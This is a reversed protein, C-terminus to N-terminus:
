PARGTVRGVILEPEQHGLGAARAPFDFLGIILQMPYDPAQDATKLLKGDLFFGVSGPRWEVAYVHDRSVDLPYPDASFEEVLRPDRIAKIGQGLGVTGDPTISDGFVEVLTIEGNDEPHEHELGVMWASFMANPTLTARCEVEIRGHRPTYGWLTPQEERVVLGPRFAQQGRESGVPGSWNGSQVASVRLPPEHLDPCWLPQEEPISLRLGKDDVRYTAAAERRSSWAPLYSAVWRGEDLFGGSFREDITAAGRTM